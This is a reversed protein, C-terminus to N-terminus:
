GADRLHGGVEVIGNALEVITEHLDMVTEAGHLLIHEQVLEAIGGVLGRLWIEPVKRLAVDAPRDGTPNPRYLAVFASFTQRRLEVAKPGAGLVDVLLARALEPNAAIVELFKEMGLRVREHWDLLGSEAVPRACWEIVARAGAEYAHLFCDEKDTFHEYFTTRSVKARAVVDAVTVKAYGRQAVARAMADYMRERQALAKPDDEWGDPLNQFFLGSADHAMRLWAYSRRGGTLRIEAYATTAAATSPPHPPDLAPAGALEAGAAVGTAAGGVVGSGAAVVVVAVAVVRDTGAVV